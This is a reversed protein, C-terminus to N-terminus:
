RSKEDSKENTENNRENIYRQIPSIGARQLEDVSPPGYHGPVHRPFSLGPAYLPKRTPRKMEEVESRLRGVEALLAYCVGVLGTVGKGALAGLGPWTVNGANDEIEELIIEELISDLKAKAEALNM